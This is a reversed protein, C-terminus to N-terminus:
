KNVTWVQASHGSNNKRRVPKGNYMAQTIRGAAHLESFRPRISLVSRGIYDAAEDATLDGRLQLMDLCRERLTEADEKVAFAAQASTGGAKFGPLEPYLLPNM